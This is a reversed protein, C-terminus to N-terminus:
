GQEPPDGCQVLRQQAEILDALKEYGEAIELCTAGQPDGEPLLAAKERWAEVRQRYVAPDWSEPM